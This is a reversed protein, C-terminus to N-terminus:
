FLCLIDIGLYYYYYYYNPVYRFLIDPFRPTLSCCSVVIHLQARMNRSNSIDFYLIYTMPLLMVHVMFQLWLTHAIYHVM